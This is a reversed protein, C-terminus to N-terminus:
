ERKETLANSIASGYTDFLQGAFFRGFTLVAKTGEAVTKAGVPRITSMLKAFDGMNLRLVGAGAVPGTADTGEHLRTYLTTTDSLLDLGRDDRVEKKGALYYSKGGHKFGLEYVMYKLGPQDSPAFLNFVGTSAPIGTGFPPFDIDGALEGQHRPDAIFRDVDHVTVTAHMTLQTGTKGASVAGARPDIEGLVFPGAMVERFSVGLPEDQMQTAEPTLPVGESTLRELYRIADTYGFDVLTRADIRNFYFDPDLPLAYQPKIVHLVVRQAPSASGNGAAVRANRERIHALEEFLAGNASLEIMHVYQHFAGPYYTPTNGICWVLWLETAGRRVAEGLNADKIWVADTWLAGRTSVPPMFIPLSIGAVLLDLDIDTHPIVECTKRTFNCVNFTGEMHTAARIRQVDIGLHPFVTGTIGDADGLAMLNPGKLYEAVPMPSGFAKVDLTRWRECMDNPEIGSLMMALNITGGSTGDGHEFRLGAESLGRVVGAQYAVRMGGGALILSHRVATM